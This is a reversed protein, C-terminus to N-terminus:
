ILETQHKNREEDPPLKMYDGYIQKLYSDYDAPGNLMYGEFEYKAGAGYIDEKNMISRFRYAGMFNVYYKSTDPPYNKLTRDIDDLLKMPSFKSGIRTNLGIWILMKEILPRKDDKLNVVDDFCSLKFLARKLLLNFQHIKSSVKNSPMGDLPFVDVWAPMVKENKSGKYSLKIKDSIIRTPYYYFSDQPEKYTILRIDEERLFDSFQIIFREYDERPMAIDVDDDWPIFGKHRVAGLYTGGSIYYTINNSDCFEVIKLLIKLDLLQLERLESNM